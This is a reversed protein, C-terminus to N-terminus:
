GVGPDVLEPRGFWAGCDRLGEVGVAWDPRRFRDPTLLLRQDVAAVGPHRLVVRTGDPVYGVKASVRLSALNDTFAGSKARTAGLHDFAFQVVGNRMETGIGAGQHAAGLWSGTTVSRTVAFDRAQLEQIGVLEGDRRVALPLTWREPVAEARTRWHYALVGRAVDDPAGVTWAVFFPMRDAPHVGALALAVLEALDDDCVPALELRPTTLRLGLVPLYRHLAARTTPRTDATTQM